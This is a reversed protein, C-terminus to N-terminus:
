SAEGKSLPVYKRMITVTKPDLATNIAKLEASSDLYFPSLHSKTAQAQFAQEKFAAAIASSLADAVDKPLGAPAFVGAGADLAAADAEMATQAEAPIPHAKMFAGITPVKSDVSWSDRMSFDLLVHLKGSTVLSSWGPYFKVDLQGDGRLMGVKQASADAYSTLDRYPVKYVKFFLPGSVDGVAGLETVKTQTKILDGATDFPPKTTNAFLVKATQGRNGAYGGLWSLKTADFNQGPVKEWVNAIMGQIYGIGINLGDPKDHAVANWGKLGGGGPLNVVDITAGLQKALYPALARGELDFTGGVGGAITLHITKGKLPASASSSPAGCAALVTAAVLAAALM